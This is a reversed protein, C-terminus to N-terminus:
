GKCIKNAQKESEGAAVVYGVCIDTGNVTIVPPDPNEESITNAFRYALTRTALNIPFFTKLAGVSTTISERIM